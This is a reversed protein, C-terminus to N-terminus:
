KRPASNDITQLQSLPQKSKEIMFSHKIKDFGKGAGISSIM